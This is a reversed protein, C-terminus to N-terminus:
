FLHTIRAIQGFQKSHLFGEIAKPAHQYGHKSHWGDTGSASRLSEVCVGMYDKSTKHHVHHTYFYRNKCKTWDESEHAMLLPLDQLKAGDGHSSGILNSYYSFYKRHNVSCDFTINSCDKFYTKIVDALFWSNTLDHNSINHVFHIDAVQLLTTLVEIYVDKALLYNEYWMKDTDQPTGATTTRKPNDIHLIDNGAIFLIKDVNFGKVKNLIGNVGERVRQVAIQSNYDEGTEFSSALKGIHIDCPDVVLLYSEDAIIEDSRWYTKPRNAIQAIEDLLQNYFLDYSETKIPNSALNYYAQKGGNTVLKYTRIEEYPLKYRECYEKVSMISGDDKLASLPATNSYQNTETVSENELDSDVKKDVLNSIRRRINDTYEIGHKDCYLRAIKTINNEQDFLEQLEKKNLEM